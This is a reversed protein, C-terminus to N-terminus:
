TPLPEHFKGFRVSCLIGLQLSWYHQRQTRLLQHFERIRHGLHHYRNM